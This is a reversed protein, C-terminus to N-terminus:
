HTNIYLYQTLKSTIELDHAVQAFQPQELDDSEINAECIYHGGNSTLLPSFIITSNTQSRDELIRTSMEAMHVSENGWITWNVTPTNLM